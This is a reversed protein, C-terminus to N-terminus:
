KTENEFFYEGTKLNPLEKSSQNKKTQVNYKNKLIMKLIKTSLEYTGLFLPIPSIIHYMRVLSLILMSILALFGLNVDISESIWILGLKGAYGNQFYFETVNRNLLEFNIAIEHLVSIVFIMVFSYYYGTFVSFKKPNHLAIRVILWPMLLISPGFIELLSGGILAGMLGTWNKVGLSPYLQNFFTPDRFDSSLISVLLFFGLGGFIIYDIRFKKLYM